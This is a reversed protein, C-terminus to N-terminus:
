FQFYHCHKNIQLNFDICCCVLNSLKMSANILVKTPSAIVINKRGITFLRIPILIDIPCIPKLVNRKVIIDTHLDYKIRLNKAFLM